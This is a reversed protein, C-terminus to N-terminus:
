FLRPEHYYGMLESGVKFIEDVKLVEGSYVQKITIMEDFREQIEKRFVMVKSPVPKGALFDFGRSTICWGKSQDHVKKGSKDKKFVKAILGLKSAITQQSAVNYGGPIQSTKIANAETFPIGNSAKEHIVHAMGCVLEATHYTLACPYEHMSADCNACKKKDKLEPFKSILFAKTLKEDLDFREIIADVFKVIHPTKYNAMNIM